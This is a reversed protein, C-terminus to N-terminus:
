TLNPLLLAIRDALMLGLVLLVPVAVLWTKARGWRPGAWFALVTAATLVATWAAVDRRAFRNQAMAAEDHAPRPAKGPPTPQVDSILDADIRLADDPAYPAGAATVLTLRGLQGHLRAPEPDGHHRAGSVRYEAVGQGTTVEIRDGPQLQDLYRFPGGYASARAMIVSTGVQGPLVGDRQLGPGSELVAGSTGEDVVEDVGISPIALLAVPAGPRVLVGQFDRSGIPATGAALEARFAAYEVQQDHRHEFRGFVVVEAVFTSLAVGVTCVAVGAARLLFAKTLWDPILPRIWRALLVVLGVAPVLVVLAPGLHRKLAALRDPEPHEADPDLEADADADADPDPDPDPDPDADPDVETDVEADGHADAGFGGEFEDANQRTVTPWAEEETGAFPIAALRYRRGAAM